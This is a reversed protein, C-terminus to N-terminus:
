TAKGHRVTRGMRGLLLKMNLLTSIRKPAVIMLFHCYKIRERRIFRIAFKTALVLVDYSAARVWVNVSRIDENITFGASQKIVPLNDSDLLSLIDILRSGQEDYSLAIELSTFAAIQEWKCEMIDPLDSKVMDEGFV